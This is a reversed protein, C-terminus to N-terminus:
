RSRRGRLYTARGALIHAHMVSHAWEGDRAEIAQVLELHQDASRRLEGPTYQAFTRLILPAETLGALTKSFRVSDAARQILRHFQDNLEGIRVLYGVSRRSSEEIQRESLTRLEAILSTTAREAARRACVPELLARLEFIEEADELEFAAVVAGHNPEFNLLGEAHLRRLAERVPTRSVGATQAVEIETLRSGAAYTGRLIGDRVTAYARDAARM